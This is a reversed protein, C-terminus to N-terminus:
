MKVIKIRDDRKVSVQQNIDQALRNQRGRFALSIAAVIAVLLILAAIEFPYVYQTYLVDGIETVNSYNAPQQIIDASSALSFHEPLIALTMLGLLLLIVLIAFPLYRVFGERTSIFNVNLMMVVFLFLTMVAGVYVFILVLALFEAELLMWLISSCVFALVLFLVGHVPNKAVIVMVASLLLMGAFVYFVAHQVLFGIDMTRNSGKKKGTMALDISGTM